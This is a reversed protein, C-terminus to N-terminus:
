LARNVVNGGLRVMTAVYFLVVLAALAVAIVISRTRQRRLREQEALMDDGIQRALAPNMTPPTPDATRRDTM